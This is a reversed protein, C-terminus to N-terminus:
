RRTVGRINCNKVGRLSPPLGPEIMEMTQNNAHRLWVRRLAMFRAMNVPEGLPVQPGGDLSIYVGEAEQLTSESATQLRLLVTQKSGSTLSWLVRYITAM